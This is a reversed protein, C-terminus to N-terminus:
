DEAEAGAVRHGEGEGRWSLRRWNAAARGAARGQQAEVRAHSKPSNPPNPPTHTRQTFRGM